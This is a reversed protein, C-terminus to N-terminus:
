QNALQGYALMSRANELQRPMRSRITETAGSGKVDYPPNNEWWKNFDNATDALAIAQRVRNPGIWVSTSAAIVKYEDSADPRLEEFAQLTPEWYSRRAEAKQQEIGYPSGLFRLLANKIEPENLNNAKVWTPNALQQSYAGTLAQWQNQDHQSAHQLLTPLSYSQNFHIWGVSAGSGLDNARWSTPDNRSEERGVVQWFAEFLAGEESNQGAGGQKPSKDGLLSVLAGLASVGGIIAAIKGLSM